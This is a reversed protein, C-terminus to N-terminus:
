GASICTKAISVGGSGCETRARAPGEAAGEGGRLGLM